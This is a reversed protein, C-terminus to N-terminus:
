RLRCPSTERCLPGAIGPDGRRQPLGHCGAPRRRCGEDKAGGGSNGASNGLTGSNSNDNGGVPVSGLNIDNGLTMAPTSVSATASIKRIAANGSDAVYANGSGDLALGRPQNFFANTGAGDLFGSLGAIGAVTTVTGDPGIKRITSNGTDAVYVDGASDVTLGAPQNFFANSGTGDLSGAINYDGALTSVVGAATIKRVLDNYSDAVYLNGSSDVAIGTPYNFLAGTGSGDAYGRISPSGAVTTVTGSSTIKRVTDTFADTVYLNGASDATIGMPSSFWAATGTGDRNGRNSVSGALTTVTGNSAIKRITANGTDTVFVNGNADLAVGNPQNFLANTGNADTTGVVAATGALATVVGSSSVKDITNNAADAVYLNGSGDRAVSTPYIFLFVGQSSNPGGALSLDVNTGGTSETSTGNTTTVTTTTGAPTTVATTIQTTTGGDKYTVATTIVTTTTGSTTTVTTTAPVGVRIINNMTDALYVTGSSDVAIGNPNNFQADSGTGSTYGVIGAAGALTTVVGEPTVRRITQNTSDTVYVNGAPDVALSSPSTFSAGTGTGDFSGLGMPSGALTTVVGAQTIKRITYSGMDAVYINGAPDVAVGTPSAFRADSGAADVYGSVGALGALTTVVGAPTVKRITYNSTDAVYVNGATDVAVSTPEYFFASSGTGDLSSAVGAIGALSTTVGNPDIKRIQDNFKDAVYVNKKSDVAVGYPYWFQAASGVGNSSGNAGVTGAITTTTGDPDIKRVTASFTDGVYITGDSAVAVGNPESFRVEARPGDSSGMSGSSPIGAVTTVTGPPNGSSDATLSVRRIMDNGTDTVYLYGDENAVVSHPVDFRATGPPGDAHGASGSTGTLTTVVGAPTIKRIVYNYTDAVYISGDSAIALGYPANFQSATGTADIAGRIGVSGAMTTVAGTPTIKRITQNGTDAVIISGSSDIAVAEPDNFSATSGVGDSSGSTGASGALTTVIGATNGPTVVMQRITSNGGDAIYVTTTGTSPDTHAALSNPGNFNAATGIGDSSGSTAVMGALTSVIGGPTVLRITDAGLDAIFLNGMNDLAIGVPTAFLGVSTATTDTEGNLDGAVGALTSVVGAPTIKRITNNGSDAVYVNGVSDSAIGTPISFRAASGAGDTSGRNSVPGALTSVTTGSVIKRIANNGTDAVYFNGSADVSIGNPAFFRAAYGVGDEDGTVQTAGVPTTINGSTDVERVAHNGTDVVWLNGSADIAIGTPGTFGGVRPVGDKNGSNGTFGAGTFYSVTGATTDIKRITNNGTDTVFLNGSTNDVAVGTPGNFLAASATGDAYGSNGAAGALTSVVASQIVVKRIMNNYTDAVYLNGQSNAAVGVPFSFTAATGTDNHHGKIDTTGALTSVVGAPTVKRITCNNTDAVYVNGASDM